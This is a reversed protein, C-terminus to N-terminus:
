HSPDKLDLIGKDGCSFIAGLNQDPAATQSRLKFFGRNNSM